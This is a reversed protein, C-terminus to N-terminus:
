DEGLYVDDQEDFFSKVKEEAIEKSAETKEVQSSVRSPKALPFRKLIDKLAKPTIGLFDRANKKNPSGGYAGLINGEAIDNEDTGGEYGVVVEGKKHRLMDLAALMDGSLTLNVPKGKKGANKYDLSKKYMPSYAKLKKNRVNDGDRVIGGGAKTRKRIHKVIENAIAVRESPKYGKPIAIKM